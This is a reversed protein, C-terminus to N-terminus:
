EGRPTTCISDSGCMTSLQMPISGIHPEERLVKKPSTAGLNGNIESLNPSHPPLADNLAESVRDLSEIYHMLKDPENETYQNVDERTVLLLVRGALEHFDLEYLTQVFKDKVASSQISKGIVSSHGFLEAAYNRTFGRRPLAMPGDRERDIELRLREFGGAMIAPALWEAVLTGENGRPNAMLRFIWQFFIISVDLLMVPALALDLPPTLMDSWAGAIACFDEQDVPVYDEPIKYEQIRHHLFIALQRLIAREPLSTDGLYCRLLIDQLKGWPRTPRELIASSIRYCVYFSPFLAPLGPLIEDRRLPIIAKRSKWVVDVLFRVDRFGLGGELVFAAGTKKSCGLADAVNSLDETYLAKSMCGLAKEALRDAVTVREMSPKLEELFPDLMKNQKLTGICVMRILHRVCLLGYYHSLIEGKHIDTYGRITKMLVPFIKNGTHFGVKHMNEGVALATELVSLPMLDHSAESLSEKRQIYADFSADISDESIRSYHPFRPHDELEGFLEKCAAEMEKLQEGITSVTLLYYWYRSFEESKVSNAGTESRAMRTSLVLADHIFDAQWDTVRSFSSLHANPCAKNALSSAVLYFSTKITRTFRRRYPSLVSIFEEIIYEDFPTTGIAARAERYRHKALQPESNAFRSPIAETEILQTQLKMERHRLDHEVRELAAQPARFAPDAPMTARVYAQLITNYGLLGYVIRATSERLQRRAPNRLVVLQFTGVIALAVALSSLAKGARYPPSDYNHRGQYQQVTWETVVIVGTGNLALLLLALTFYMPKEYILYELVIIAMIYGVASGAIQMVFTFLTQGLTPTLAVVVTILGGTLGYNIFWQRTAPAWILVAFILTAAATKGAYISTPSEFLRKARELKQWINVNQPVYEQQELIALAERVCLERDEVQSANDIEMDGTESRSTRNSIPPRQAREKRKREAKHVKGALTEFLHVHVRKPRTKRSIVAEHFTSLEHAFQNLAYLLSYVRVLCQRTDTMMQDERVKKPDDEEDQIGEELDFDVTSVPRSPERDAESAKVSTARSTAGRRKRMEAEGRVWDRGEEQAVSKREEYLRLRSSGGHLRGCVLAAGLLEQQKLRFANFDNLIASPGCTCKRAPKTGHGHDQKHDADSHDSATATKTSLSLATTTSTPLSKDGGAPSLGENAVEEALRAAVRRLRERIEDQEDEDAAAAPTDNGTATRAASSGALLARKRLDQEAGATTPYSINTPGPVASKELDKPPSDTDCESPRTTRAPSGGLAESIEQIAMDIDRRMRQFPKLTSPLFYEKFLTANQSHINSISTHSTILALYDDMSWRSWNIEASTEAMKMTLLGFDARITQALRARADREEDTLTLTYTKALLHSYTAVHELSMVLLKRLERESSVPFVFLNVFLVIASGWKIYEKLYTSSFGTGLMMSTYIGNFSMLIALLSFGFYKLGQAKILALLYVMVAFVVAQAVPEHGLHALIVFNLSGVCVGLIAFFTATLCAGVSKGPTGAIVILITGTFTIPVQSLDDFGRLFILIFAIIYALVGIKSSQIAKRSTAFKGLHRLKCIAKASLSKGGELM